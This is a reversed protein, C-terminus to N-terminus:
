LTENFNAANLATLEDLLAAAHPAHCTITVTDGNKACLMMLEVLSLANAQRQGCQVTGTAGYQKFLAVIKNSSRAHLGHHNTLKLSVTNTSAHETPQTM